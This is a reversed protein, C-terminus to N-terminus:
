SPSGDRAEPASIKSAGKALLEDLVPKRARVRILVLEAEFREELITAANRLQAVLRTRTIPIAVWTVDASADAREGVWGALADLGQGTRASVLVSQPDHARLPEVTLVDVVRDKHGRARINNVVFAGYGHVVVSQESQIFEPQPSLGCTIQVQGAIRRSRTGPQQKFDAPIQERWFAVLKMRDSGDTIVVLKDPDDGFGMLTPTSGTGVGFKVSPPERGTDYPSSWAGDKEDTSLRSGTWAIRTGPPKPSRPDSPLIALTFNARSRPTGKKPIQRPM